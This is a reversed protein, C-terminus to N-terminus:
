CREQRGQGLPTGNRETFHSRHPRSLGGLRLNQWSQPLRRCATGARGASGVGGRPTGGAARGAAGSKSKAGRPAGRGLSDRQPRHPTVFGGPERKQASHPALMPPKGAVASGLMSGAGGGCCGTNPAGTTPSAGARGASGGGTTQARHRPLLPACMAYQWYQPPRSWSPGARSAGGVLGSVGTLWRATGERGGGGGLRGGGAGTTAGAGGAGRGGAAGAGARSM